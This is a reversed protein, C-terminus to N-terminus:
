DHRSLWTTILSMSTRFARSRPLSLFGHRTGEVVTYEVETGAERLERHMTTGSARLRDKHAELMLTPPFGRLDSGGPFAPGPRLLAQDGVYNLNIRRVMAPTLLPRAFLDLSAEVEPVVPLVAHFLGYALVTSAIGAGSEGRLRRAAAAALNAGGSAGGLHIESGSDEM